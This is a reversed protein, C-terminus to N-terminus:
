LHHKYTDYDADPEGTPRFYEINDIGFGWEERPKWVAEVRMGMRVEHADIDAVLHLFPIDAGDLLVYAAVYPPKIRQGQFPINIIAFTTVTGKDPLEVFDTTPQGTAPDAGHPPFYVKGNEGTKAGLLKGQAIARLYASEEHSASHQITLSVPTVVMTVPDKDGDSEAVAEAPEEEDGPKFYAIDTIAGVPEDVWHVHVRTGTKIAKPEGADVAHILPTDAGDLKILAWAFPRDLPQGEIPEPQWTWSVVTGVSSVPVMEGLPEYTVPDYEPPPVHVRGDSGRVGLVHRDRLATFFKSLTPGVSRTYDFSLTLPAALPPEPNDMLPPSSSSATM